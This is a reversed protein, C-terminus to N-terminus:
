IQYSNLCKLVCYRELYYMKMNMKKREKEKKIKIHKLTKFAFSKM